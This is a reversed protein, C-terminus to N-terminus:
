GFFFPPVVLYGVKGVEDGEKHKPVKGAGAGGRGGGRGTGGSVFAGGGRDAAGGGSRRVIRAVKKEDVGWGTRSTKTLTIYRSDGKGRSLSKLGFALALEHVNKRTEKNTPPLSMSDRGGIDSIFRRIQQVLTTMDIIRNPLVNITPDLGAALRMAKRGKKGGKKQSLPDSAQLLRELARAEKREAKKQRDKDWQAQLATPLSNRKDKKRELMYIEETLSSAYFFINSKSAPSFGELDDDYDFTGDRIATFLKKREKRNRGELIEENEDLINQM